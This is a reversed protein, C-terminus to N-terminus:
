KKEKRKNIEDRIEAAAKFDNDSVVVNLAEELEENSLETLIKDNYRFLGDDEPGDKPKEIRHKDMYAEMDEYIIRDKYSINSVIHHEVVWEAGNMLRIVMKKKDWYLLIGTPEKSPNFYSAINHIRQNFDIIEIIDGVQYKKLKNLFEWRHKLKNFYYGLVSAIFCCGLIDLIIRMHM